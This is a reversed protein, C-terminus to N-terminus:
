AEDEDGDENVEEPALSRSHNDVLEHEAEDGGFGMAAAGTPFM